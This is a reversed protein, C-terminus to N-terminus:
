ERKEENDDIIEMPYYKLISGVIESFPHCIEDLCCFNKEKELIYLENLKVRIIENIENINKSFKRKYPSLVLSSIKSKISNDDLVDDLLKYYVLSVNMSSAFDVADNEMVMPKRKQPHAMCRKNHVTLEKNSLGDLLMALFTMDYNLTARPINGFNKKIALCIGCYYGNFMNFEKIKLEGKLPTVYGFM